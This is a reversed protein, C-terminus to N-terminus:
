QLLDPEEGLHWCAHRKMIQACKTPELAEVMLNLFFMTHNDDPYEMYWQSEEAIRLAKDIRGRLEEVTLKRIRPKREM